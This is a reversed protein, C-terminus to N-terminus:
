GARIGERFPASNILQLFAEHRSRGIGLTSATQTEVTSGKRSVVRWHKSDIRNIVYPHHTTLIFQLRRSQAIIESTIEDLCNAGLGNEFEDILLVTDDPSFMINSLYILTHFMGSSINPEPIWTTSGREKIRLEPVDGIHEVTLREITVDEVHPFIAQFRQVLQQFAPQANEHVLVLKVYVPLESDRIRELTRYRNCYDTLRAHQLGSPPALHDRFVLRGFGAYVPQLAEEESLLNLVSQYPSLKPTPRGQFLIRDGSREVLAEGNRELRESLFGLASTRRESPSRLAEADAVAGNSAESRAGLEGLWRYSQGLVSFDLAWEVCWENRFRSGRVIQQLTQVADLIQTKGVGSIGVLLTLDELFETPALRWGTDKNRYALRQLRM